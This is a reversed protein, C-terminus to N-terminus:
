GAAADVRLQAKIVKGTATHPLADVFEISAPLKFRALAASAWDLLEAASLAEGPRLVVYAKVAEGSRRDPMGVVAVEAIAPHQGLVAEIEAPYVNFGSVLILEKRRDVLHLDGDDDAYAVDGTRFWGAADPGDQGDPWYGSFVNPGRVAIEGPEDEDAPDGDEDLLMVEVGPIPRGVSGPKIVGGVLTSTVVPATETLGYGEFIRVGLRAFHALTDAPLPAAGSLALRVAAFAERAAPQAAWAQYMAPAGLVNTVQQRAMVALAEAPDFREVLLGTAGAWAVMGLGSNLGYVHFLPLALLVVDDPVVVPPEIRGCQDLNALLARHSLMAGRPRGSTGSTYILAALADGGAAQGPPEAAAAGLADSLPVTGDPGSPAAVVVHELAPADGRLRDAAEIAAVSSTVLARAGSDTLMYALEPATYATNAPVAVLGARLAGFYFTPFDFTNGLQIAVRDGATLGLGLLAAAARDAAADLETWTMANSGHLLAARGPDRQAARRVADAVNVLADTDDEARMGPEEEAGV